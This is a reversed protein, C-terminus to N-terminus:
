TVTGPRLAPDYRMPGHTRMTRGQARQQYSQSGAPLPGTIEEIRKAAEEVVEPNDKAVDVDEDPDTRLDYVRATDLYDAASVTLHVAWNDDRVCATNGWGTTVYERHPPAEGVAVPWADQGHFDDRNLDLMTMLTPTLDLNQVWADCREGRPGDPTRIFWPVRTNYPHLRDGGKGFRGKDMLETGHDATFMVITNEFLGLKEVAELLHGVWRDMFTVFGLYLAKCRDTEEPTLPIEPRRDPQQHYVQPYILDKVGPKPPCYMDAYHRPPDWLEHPTFSDVWLFFPGQRHNDVLWDGARRFVQACQWDEESRRDLANLLYQAVTPHVAPSAEGEPVHPRLDIREMPGSRWPDNEQGRIFEWSLFGRTFNMTPKFMHYTDSVLGTLYGGDHLMEALTDEEHSIPHWGPGAPQLGEDPVVQRWPFSRHGTFFCRRVQITPLGEAYCRDFMMSESALQDIHPTKVRSLAKGPGVCDARLSDICIVIVNPKM